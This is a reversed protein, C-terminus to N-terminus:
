AGRPAPAADVLYFLHQVYGLPAHAAHEALVPRCLALHRAPRIVFFREGVVDDRQGLLVPAVAVAPHCRQQM